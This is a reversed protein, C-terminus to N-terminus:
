VFRLAVNRVLAEVNDQIYKLDVSPKVFALRREASLAAVRPEEKAARVLFVCIKYMIQYPFNGKSVPYVEGITCLTCRLLKAFM